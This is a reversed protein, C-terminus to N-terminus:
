AAEASVAYLGDETKAAICVSSHMISWVYCSVFLRTCSQPLPACSYTVYTLNQPFGDALKLAMNTPLATCGQEFAARMTTM